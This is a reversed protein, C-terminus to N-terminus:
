LWRQALVNITQWRQIQVTIVINVQLIVNSGSFGIRLLNLVKRFM